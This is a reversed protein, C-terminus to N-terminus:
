KRFSKLVDTKPDELAGRPADPIRERDSRTRGELTRVRALADHLRDTKKLVSTPVIGFRAKFHRSFSAYTGFGCDDAVQRISRGGRELILCSRDLRANLLFRGLSVGTTKQFVQRLSSYSMGAKMALKKFNWPLQPRELIQQALGDLPSLPPRTQQALSTSLLIKELQHIALASDLGERDLIGQLIQFQLVMETPNSLNRVPREAAGPLLGVRRLKDIRDGRIAVYFHNWTKGEVPRVWTTAGTTNFWLCPFDLLLDDGGYRYRIAGAALFAVVVYDDIRKRLPYTYRPFHAYHLFKLDDFGRHTPPMFSLTM